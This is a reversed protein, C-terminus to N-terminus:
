DTSRRFSFVAFFNIVAAFGCITIFRGQLEAFDAGKLYVARMVEMFYRIPNLASAEQAFQPMSSIPTFIGSMILFIMSFFVFTLVAQQSTASFNSVLLGFGTFATLYIAAFGYILFLSGLPWLGYVFYAIGIGLTLLFMGIFWPPALKAAIFVFKSIPAVNLQEITGSEKERVINLSALIGSILSILFVMVGPVIFAKYNLHPNFRYQTMIELQPAKLGGSDEALEQRFNTIINKLYMAGLGGKVGDISNAAIYVSAAGHSVLNKEFDRPIELIIDCDGSEIAALASDYSERSIQSKFYKSAALKQSLRASYASADRDIVAAKINKLEFDAAFPLILLQMVPMIFILKPMFKDRLILKFEKELLILFRKM